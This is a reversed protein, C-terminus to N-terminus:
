ITAKNMEAQTCRAGDARETGAGLLSNLGNNFPNSGVVLVMANVDAGAICVKIPM